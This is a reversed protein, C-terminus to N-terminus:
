ISNCTKAKADFRKTFSKLIYRIYGPALDLATVQPAFSIEFPTVSFLRKQVKKHCVKAEPYLEGLVFASGGTGTGIDLIQKPKIPEPVDVYLKSFWENLKSEDLFTFKAFKGLYSIRVTQSNM